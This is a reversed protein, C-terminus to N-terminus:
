ARVGQGCRPKEVDQGNIRIVGGSKTQLGLALKLLSSKGCGSPGVVAVFQGDDITLSVGQVADVASRGIARYTLSVNQFELSSPM